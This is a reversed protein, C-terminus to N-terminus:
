ELTQTLRILLGPTTPCRVTHSITRAATSRTRLLTSPPPPLHIVISQLRRALESLEKAHFRASKEDHLAASSCSTHGALPFLLVAVPSLFVFTNTPSCGRNRGREGSFYLTFIGHVAAQIQLRAPSSESMHPIMEDTDGGWVSLYCCVSRWPQLSSLALM